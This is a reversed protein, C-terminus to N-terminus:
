YYKLSARGIIFGMYLFLLLTFVRFFYRTWVSNKKKRIGFLSINDDTEDYTENKERRTVDGKNTKVVDILCKKPTGDAPVVCGKEANAKVEDSSPARCKARYTEYKEKIESLSADCYNVGLKQNVKNHIKWFWSILHERSHLNPEVPMEKIFDKYSDRCYRCPLVNGVETFFRSYHNRTTGPPFGYDQDYTDPNEPYGFTVCHLFLWGAPGWVKTMLGNKSSPDSNQIALCPM